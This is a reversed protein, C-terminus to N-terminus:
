KNKMSSIPVGNLVVYAQIIDADNDPFLAAEVRYLGAAMIIIAHSNLKWMFNEEMLNVVNKDWEIADRCPREGLHLYRTMIM